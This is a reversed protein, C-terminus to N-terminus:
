PRQLREPTRHVPRRRVPHRGPMGQATTIDLIVRHSGTMEGMWEDQSHRTPTFHAPAQASPRAGVAVATAAAGLGAVLQRRGKVDQKM